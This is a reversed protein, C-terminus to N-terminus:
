HFRVQMNCYVLSLATHLDIKFMCVEALIHGVREEVSAHYIAWIMRTSEDEYLHDV